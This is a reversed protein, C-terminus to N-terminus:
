IIIFLLTSEFPLARNIATKNCSSACAIFNSHRQLPLIEGISEKRQDVTDALIMERMPSIKEEGFFMHETGASVSVEACFAVANTGSSRASRREHPDATQPDRDAWTMIKAFNQYTPAKKEDLTKNILVEM